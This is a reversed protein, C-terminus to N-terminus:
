GAISARLRDNEAQLRENIGNTQKTITKLSQDVATDRRGKRVRSEVVAVCLGFLGGVVVKLWDMVSADHAASQKERNNRETADQHIQDEVRTLRDSNTTVDLGAVQVQLAHLGVSLTNVKQALQGVQRFATVAADLKANLTVFQTQVASLSAPDYKRPPPQQACIPAAIFLVIALHKMNPTEAKSTFRRHM